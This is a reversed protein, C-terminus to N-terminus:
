DAICDDDFTLGTLKTGVANRKHTPQHYRFVWVYWQDYPSLFDFVFELSSSPSNTLCGTTLCALFRGFVSGSLDWSRTSQTWPNNHPHPEMTGPIYTSVMTCDINRHRLWLAKTASVIIRGWLLAVRFSNCGDPEIRAPMGLPTAVRRQGVRLFLELLTICHLLYLAEDQSHAGIGSKQWVIGVTSAVILLPM